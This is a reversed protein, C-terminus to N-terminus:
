DHDYAGAEEGIATLEALSAKRAAHHDALWAALGRLDEAHIDTRGRQAAKTVSFAIYAELVEGTIHGLQYLVDPSSGSNIWGYASSLEDPLQKIM